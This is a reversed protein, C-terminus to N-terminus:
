SHRIKWAFLIVDFMWYQLEISFINFSEVFAFFSSFIAFVIPNERMLNCQIQRLIIFGIWLKRSRKKEIKRGFITSHEPFVSVCVCWCWCLHHFQNVQLKLCFWYIMSAVSLREFMMQDCKSSLLHWFKIKLLMLVSVCVCAYVSVSPTFILWEIANKCM